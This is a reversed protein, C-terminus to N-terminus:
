KCCPYHKESGKRRWNWWFMWRLELYWWTSFSTCSSLPCCCAPLMHIRYDSWGPSRFYRASRCHDDFKLQLIRLLWIFLFFSLTITGEPIIDVPSIVYIASVIFQANLFCFILFYIDRYLIFRVASSISDYLTYSLSFSLQWIFAHGSLLRFHDKLIWSIVYCDRSFFPFIKCVSGFLLINKDINHVM